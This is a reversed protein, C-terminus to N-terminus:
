SSWSAIVFDNRLRSPPCTTVGDSISIVAITQARESSTLSPASSSTWPLAEHAKMGVLDQERGHDGLLAVLLDLLVMTVREADVRVCVLGLDALGHLLEEVHVDLAHVHDLHARLGLAAAHGLAAPGAPLLRDDLDLGALRDLDEFSCLGSPWEDSCASM